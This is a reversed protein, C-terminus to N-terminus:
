RMAFLEQHFADPNLGHNVFDRRLADAFGTPGCFWVSATRWDPVAARIQEGTLQGDRADVKIHVRIGAAKADARLRNLAEEDEDTTTHFFDVEQKLPEKALHQMRGIFPTIGIGGGIWIQRPKDDRFNFRGYPGEVTVPDGVKWQEHMTGTYDGLAKTIFVVEGDGKWNSAITYPHAGENGGSTVFAFQGADHGKWGAQLKVKTELVKLAPFHYLSTIAGKTKLGIGIRGTLSVFAAYTGWIMFVALAVGLPTAWDEYTLLVVSHFVLLLYLVALLKHTKFFLHYPFRKVLALVILIAALYFGWEGISEAVGRMSGLWDQLSAATQAADAPAEPPRGTLTILGLSSLWGPSQKGAWHAVSFVLAGIGLWKHLRYMKDLGNLREELWHSRMALITAYSMTGIALVGSFQIFGNRWQMFQQAFLATPEALLWLASLGIIFVWFAVVIRKM